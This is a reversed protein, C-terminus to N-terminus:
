LFTYASIDKDWSIFTIQSDTSFSGGSGRCFSSQVKFCSTIPSIITPDVPISILIEAYFHFKLDFQFIVIKLTSFSNKNMQGKHWPAENFKSYLWIELLSKGLWSTNRMQRKGKFLNHRWSHIVCSKLTKLYNQPLFFFFFGRSFLDKFLVQLNRTLKQKNAQYIGIKLKPHAAHKNDAGIIRLIYPAKVWLLNCFASQLHLKKEM